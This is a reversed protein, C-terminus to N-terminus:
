KFLTYRLDSPYVQVHQYYKKEGDSHKIRDGVGSIYRYLEHLDVMGNKNGAYNTDAPMSGSKGVGRVLYRTFCSDEDNSWAEERYAAATLVYFKNVKRLDGTNSAYDSEVLGPDASRFVDVVKADFAKAARAADGDSSGGNKQYIAAGSGCTELLVIVKGPVALLLDRLVNLDLWDAPKEELSAMEISGTDAESSSDGSDGHTSIFFMSVDNADAGAFTDKILQKIQKLNTNNRVTIEYKGGDPTRVQQLMKQMHKMDNTNQPAYEWKKERNPHYFQSESVLLARYKPTNKDAGADSAISTPRYAPSKARDTSAASPKGYLRFGLDKAKLGTFNCAPCYVAKAPFTLTVTQWKKEPCNVKVSKFASRAILTGGTDDKASIALDLNKIATLKGASDNLLWLQCVISGNGQMELSRPWLTWQKSLKGVAKTTPKAQLTNTSNRKVVVSMAAKMGNDAIVTITAKGPKMATVVCDQSVRAVTKDSTRFNLKVNAYDPELVFLQKMDIDQGVFLTASKQTLSLKKLAYGDKVTLTYKYRKGNVLSISITTVGVSLPAVFICDTSRRTIRAVKDDSNKWSGIDAETTTLYLDDQKNITIGSDGTV